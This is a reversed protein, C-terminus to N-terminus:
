ALFAHQVVELDLLAVRWLNQKVSVKITHALDHIAAGAIHDLSHLDRAVWGISQNQANQAGRVNGQEGKHRGAGVGTRTERRM